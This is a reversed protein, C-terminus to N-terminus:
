EAKKLRAFTTKDWDKGKIFDYMMDWGTTGIRNQCKDLYFGFFSDITDIVQAINDVVKQDYGNESSTSDMIVSMGYGIMDSINVENPECGCFNVVKDKRSQHLSDFTPVIRVQYYCENNEPSVWCTIVYQYKFKIDPDVDHDYIKKSVFVNEEEGDEFSSVQELVNNIDFDQKANFSIGFIKEM